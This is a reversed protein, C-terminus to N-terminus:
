KLTSSHLSMCINVDLAPTLAQVGDHISFDHSEGDQMSLRLMMINIM